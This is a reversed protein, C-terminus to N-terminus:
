AEAYARDQEQAVGSKALLLKNYLNCGCRKAEEYIDHLAKHSIRLRATTM